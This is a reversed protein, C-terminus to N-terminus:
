EASMTAVADRLRPVVDRQKLAQNILDLDTGHQDSQLRVVQALVQELDELLARTKSDSAAPSDLLLRTTLLLDSARGVFEPNARAGRTEGPLSVLLAAAQGFYRSTTAEYVPPVTASASVAASDTFRNAAVAGHNMVPLRGIGVGVVLAAAIGVWPRMWWSRRVAAGEFHRAEVASWMADLESNRLEPPEHYSHAEDRLWKDFRDDQM